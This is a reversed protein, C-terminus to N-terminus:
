FSFGIKYGLLPQPYTETVTKPVYKTQGGSTYDAALYNM